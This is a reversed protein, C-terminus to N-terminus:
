EEKVGRMNEVYKQIECYAQYACGNTAAYPYTKLIVMLRGICEVAADRERELQHCKAELQEVNTLLETNAAELRQIYALANDWLPKLSASEKCEDWMPCSACPKKTSCHELGKKIEDPTKRIEAM